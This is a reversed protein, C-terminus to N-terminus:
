RTDRPLDPDAFDGNGNGSQGTAMRKYAPWAVSQLMTEFERHRYQTPITTVNAARPVQFAGGVATGVRAVAGDEGIDDNAKVNVWVGVRAAVSAPNATLNDPDAMRDRDFQNKPSPGSHPMRDQRAIPDITILNVPVNPNAALIVREASPAGWSHAVVIVTQGPRAANIADKIGSVDDYSRYAAVTGDPNRYQDESAVGQVNSGSFMVDGFGGVFVWVLGTIPQHPMDDMAPATAVRTGPADTPAAAHGSALITRLDAPDPTALAARAMGLPDAFMAEAQVYANFADATSISGPEGPAVGEGPARVGPPYDWLPRMPRGWRDKPWERGNKDKPLAQGGPMRKRRKPPPAFAGPICPAGSRPRGPSRPAPTRWDLM